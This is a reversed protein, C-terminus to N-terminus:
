AKPLVFGNDVDGSCVAGDKVVVPLPRIRCQGQPKNRVIADFWRKAEVEGDCNFFSEWKEGDSSIEFAWKEGM